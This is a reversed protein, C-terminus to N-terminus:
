SLYNKIKELIINNSEFFQQKAEHYSSALSILNYQKDFANGYTPEIPRVKSKIGHNIMILFSIITMYIDAGAVPARLELRRGRNLKDNLPVRLTTTRNNYGWSINIPPFIKFNSERNYRIYDNEEPVFFIMAFNILQLVGAISFLLLDSEIGEKKNFINNQDKDFLSLNVHLASGRDDSFPQSVFSAELNFKKAVRKSLDKLLLIDRCLNQIDLYPATNIEIQGSGEEKEVALIPIKRSNVQSSLEAIFNDIVKDEKNIKDGQSLLYFELEVGIVLTFGKFDSIVADLLKVKNDYIFDIYKSDSILHQQKGM